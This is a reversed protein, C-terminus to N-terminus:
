GQKRHRSPTPEPSATIAASEAAGRDADDLILPALRSRQYSTVLDGYHLLRGTTYFVIRAIDLVPRFHSRRFKREYRSAIPVSVVRIQRDRSAAMLIGAEFVFNEAPLEVLALADPPYWRQGSQTDAIAQACVWSIAWDAIANARRRAAPQQERNRLRAGIVLHGPYAHAAAAIRPIDSALHQGDGDMTLVADYGQRKAERFGCRLAEGKGGRGVQRLLTVPMKAVIDATGDSSGDDVVIIAAGLALVSDLVDGIASAENFCPIVVCWRTTTLTM